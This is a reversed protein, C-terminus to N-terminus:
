HGNQRKRFLAKINERFPPKIVGEECVIASVSLRPVVDRRAGMVRVGKLLEVGEVDKEIGEGAADSFKMEDGNALEADILSVPAAAWFPVSREKCLAALSNSGMEGIVDGNSAIRDAGVIALDVMGRRMLEGASNDTLVTVPLGEGALELATLRLGSLSPRTELVYIMRVKGAHCAARIVGLATGYDVSYFIGSNSHTLISAGNKVLAGGNKGIRRNADSIETLMRSAEHVMIGRIEKQSLHRNADAVGVLRSLATRIGFSAPDSGLIEEKAANLRFFFDRTDKADIKRSALVLAFAAAAGGMLAGRVAGSRVAACIERHDRFRKYELKDPLRSQDALILSDDKWEISKIEKPTAM